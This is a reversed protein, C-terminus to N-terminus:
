KFASSWDIAGPAQSAVTQAETSKGTLESAFDQLFRQAVQSAQQPSIDPHNSALNSELAGLIGRAAPNNFIPNDQRIQNITLAQQVHQPVADMIAATRSRFGGNIMAGNLRVSQLLAQQVASNIVSSFANADGGLAATITEQNVGGLFNVTSMKQQLAQLQEAGLPVVDAEFSAAQKNGGQGNNANQWIALYNDLPSGSQQGTAAQQQQGTGAAQNNQQQNQGQQQGAENSQGQQSQSVGAQIQNNQQQGQGIGSQAQNPGQSQVQSQSQSGGFIANFLSM